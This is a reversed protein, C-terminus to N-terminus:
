WRAGRHSPAMRAEAAAGAADLAEGGVGPGGEKFRCIVARSLPTSPARRFDMANFTARDFSDLFFFSRAFCFLM